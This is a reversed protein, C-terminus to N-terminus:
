TGTVTTWIGVAGAVVMIGTTTWGLTAALKGNRYNGMLDKDRSILMTVFLFPAAAIGNIIASLVLLGIPDSDFLSIIVGGITGVGLLVYFTRAQSPRRDFGWNKGLLGALGASGSAALVPVALIGSGVFGAAFLFKAAPGAIPELAKAADAATKIDTGNKGLTAATAAIIAFMVLVSFFMGIFVDARANRLKRQAGAPSNDDLGVAHDGGLDDERLEEIRHASQWFFLYPSITTGLVAVILGLYDWSFRFQLGLLGAVVDGWDVKAVFLVAVYALLALCLWKFVKAIIAFGGAVLVLAIGVGAIASWLQAPGAGFLEMGQGIAMLDAAANLTNAGLLAVILIAIVVRPKRSFKRRALKGLSDGTALATRDCIEQVVMMMPLTVPATWLMGNSFTAGVQAYTAIGSPDDDAAGTVLGPGLLGLFRRVPSRKAGSPGQDGGSSNEPKSDSAPAERSEPETSDVASM